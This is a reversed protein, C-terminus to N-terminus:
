KEKKFKGKIVREQEEPKDKYTRLVLKGDLPLAQLLLNFGEGDEHRYAVGLNLWFDDKGDRKIVSYARYDPNAKAAEKQTANVFGARM